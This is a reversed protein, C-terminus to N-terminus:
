SIWQLIEEEKEDFVVLNIIKRKLLIKGIPEEFIEQRPKLEELPKEIKELRELIEKNEKDDM